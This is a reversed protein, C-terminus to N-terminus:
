SRAWDEAPRTGGETTNRDVLVTIRGVGAKQAGLIARLSILLTGVRALSSIFESETESGTALIIATSSGSGWKHETQTGTLSIVPKVVGVPPLTGDLSISREKSKLLMLACIGGVATWFLARLRRSFGLTLGAAATLGFIKTILITGGEYTGINGPIFTGAANVLKTLAEILLAGFVGIKLGMLWLILGVELVAMLHCAFNLTLSIWFAAPTHHHFDLLKNEVSQILSQKGKVLRNLYRVNGLRRATASFVPWRKRVALAIFSLLGILAVSFVGGYVRLAHSLPLALLVGIVGITSTLTGTVSFLGRDLTVSSIACAAPIRQSLLSTRMSDGFVQGIIGFQGGADAALPLALLRPFSIKDKEDVLTLQWAWTKVVHSVGALVILLTM